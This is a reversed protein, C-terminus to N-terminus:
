RVIRDYVRGYDHSFAKLIYLVPRGGDMAIINDIFYSVSHLYLHLSLPLLFFFFLSLQFTSSRSLDASYTIERLISFVLPGRRRGNSVACVYLVYKYQWGTRLHGVSAHFEWNRKGGPSFIRALPERDERERSNM